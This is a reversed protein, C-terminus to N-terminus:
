SADAAVTLTGKSKVAAPVEGAAKADVGTAAVTTTGAVANTGSSSSSSNSSGCGAAAFAMAALVCALPGAGRRTTSM